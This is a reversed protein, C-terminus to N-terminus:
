QFLILAIVCKWIELKLANEMQFSFRFAFFEWIGEDEDEAEEAEM